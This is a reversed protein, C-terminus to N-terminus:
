SIPNKLAADQIMVPPDVRVIDKVKHGPLVKFYGPKIKADMFTIWRCFKTPVFLINLGSWLVYRNDPSIPM